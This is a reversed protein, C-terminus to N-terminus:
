AKRVIAIGEGSLNAVTTAVAREPVGDFAAESADLPPIAQGKSVALAALALAFPLQAERVHGTLANFGRLAHGELAAKEAATPEHLGSAASIVLHPSDLGAREALAKIGAQLGGDARRARGSLVREIVAYPTRGRKEAHERTELVLFAGGTGAIVGGGPGERGWLPQWEGQQLHHGTEYILLKDPGEPHLAGGVLMHTSQGSSLRAVATELASIGAGEEGMMTRSSGTVKHVISINGALLNSLQALFLTPRLDNTLRENLFVGFDDSGQAGAMIAEDVQIDREGGAAAVIMDMSACLAEDNKLGADDLALGATYVGLRQWNEMQRQDQRKPIQLNWDIEGATHVPYPAFTATDVRPPIAPASFAQWHADVGEGLSSVIGIGTIVVDRPNMPDRPSM